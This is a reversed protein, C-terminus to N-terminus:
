EVEMINKITFKYAKSSLGVSDTVPTVKLINVDAGSKEHFTVDLTDTNYDVNSSGNFKDYIYKTTIIAFLFIFIVMLVERKRYKLANMM